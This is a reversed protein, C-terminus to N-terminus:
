IPEEDFDFAEFLEEDEEVTGEPTMVSEPWEVEGTALFHELVDAAIEATIKAHEVDVFRDNMCGPEFLDHADDLAMGLGDAVGKTFGDFLEGTLREALFGGICRTDESAWMPMYFAPEEPTPNAPQNRLWSVAALLHPNEALPTM